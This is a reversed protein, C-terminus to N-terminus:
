ELQAFCKHEKSDAEDDSRWCDRNRPNATGRGFSSNRQNRRWRRWEFHKMARRCWICCGRRPQGGQGDREQRLLGEFAAAGKPFGHAAAWSFSTM